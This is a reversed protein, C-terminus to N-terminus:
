YYSIVRQQKQKEDYVKAVLQNITAIEDELGNQLRIKFHDEVNYLLLNLEWKALGFDDYFNATYSPSKQNVRLKTSLLSRINKHIETYTM